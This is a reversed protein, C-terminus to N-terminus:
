LWMILLRIIEFLLSFFVCFLSVRVLLFSFLWFRIKFCFIVFFVVDNDWIMSLKFCCFFLSIVWWCFSWWFFLFWWYIFVLSCLCLWFSVLEIFVSWWVCFCNILDFCMVDSLLRIVLMVCLMFVGNFMFIVVVLKRCFCSFLKFVLKLFLFRVLLFMVFKMLLVFCVVSNSKFLRFCVDLRIVLKLCIVMLWVLLVLCLNINFM